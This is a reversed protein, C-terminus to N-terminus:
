NGSAAASTAASAPAGGKHKHAGHHRKGGKRNRYMDDALQKQDASMTAYLDSMASAMKKMNDAHLQAIDAYSKMVEDANMTAVKQARARFAQDAKDANDRMTQAFADWPKSQADTIQLKTHLEEIRREVADAHRKARSEKMAPAAASSATAPAPTQQAWSASAFVACSLLAPLAVNRIVNNM